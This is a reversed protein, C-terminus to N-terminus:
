RDLAKSRGFCAISLAHPAPCRCCFTPGDCVPLFAHSRRRQKGRSYEDGCGRGEGGVFSSCASSTCSSRSGSRPPKPSVHTCLQSFWFARKSQKVEWRFGSIDAALIAALKRTEVMATGEGCALSARSSVDRSGRHHFRSGGMQSIGGFFNSALRLGVITPVATSRLRGL